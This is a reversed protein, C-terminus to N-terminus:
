QNYDETSNKTEKKFKKYAAKANSNLTASEYYTLCENAVPKKQNYDLILSSKILSYTRKGLSDAQQLYFTNGIVDFNISESIDNKSLNENHAKLCAILVQRKYCLIWDNKSDSKQISCGSLTLLIFWYVILVINPIRKLRM